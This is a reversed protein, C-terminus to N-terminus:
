GIRNRFICLFCLSYKKKGSVTVAQISYSRDRTVVSEPLHGNVSLSSPRVDEHYMLILSDVDSSGDHEVVPLGEWGFGIVDGKQVAIRDGEPVPYTVLQGTPGASIVNKGIIDFLTEDAANKRLVIATFSQSRGLWLRWASVVGDSTFEIPTIFTQGGTYTGPDSRDM